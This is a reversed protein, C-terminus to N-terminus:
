LLQVNEPDLQFAAKFSGRLYREMEYKPASPQLWGIDYRFPGSSSIWQNALDYIVSNQFFANFTASLAEESRGRQIRPFVADDSEKDVFVAGHKDFLRVAEEDVRDGAFWAGPWCFFEPRRFKDEQFALFHAFLHGIVFNVPSFEYKLYQNRLDVLPGNFWKSFLAAILHPSVEKLAEALQESVEEYEERTCDRVASKLHPLQTAIIRCSMTFRAGPNVDDIFTRFNPAITVPFGSTPNISFDCVLLFLNILPDNFHQPRESETLRLFEEFAKVYVGRLYGVAEFSGWDLRHGCAYSLYQLQCFCAQGEFIERSGIPWLDIPSGYYYGDVKQDRLARFGEAWEKPHPLVKFERDATSALQVVTHAYTMHFAHGLNEFLDKEAVEKAADPGLTFTRFALLDYHNNIITNARGAITGYGTPGRENLNIAQSMVSKKFGDEQVLKKLDAHTAHSQVPYNLGFIFGYTSGIHQWWHITEHLLTSMAQGGEWGIAGNTTIGADFRSLTRHVMPSLRLVFQLTSYVGHANHVAPFAPSARDSADAFLLEPTLKM